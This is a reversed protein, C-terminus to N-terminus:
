AEQQAPMYSMASLGSCTLTNNRVTMFSLVAGGSTVEDFSIVFLPFTQVNGFSIAPRGSHVEQWVTCPM